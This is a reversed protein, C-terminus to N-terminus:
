LVCGVVRGSGGPYEDSRKPCTNNYCYLVLMMFVIASDLGHLSKTERRISTVTPRRSSYSSM